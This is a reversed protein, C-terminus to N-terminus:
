APPKRRLRRRIPVGIVLGLVAMVALWPALAVATIVLAKGTSVLADLSGGWTRGIQTTFEPSEPPVYGKRDRMSVTLTSFSAHDDWRKMQGRRVNIDGRVRTLERDVELIETLKSSAVKAEYLKRLAKERAELNLAEAETDYYRDTVDDSDKTKKRAEGLKAVADMLADFGAVPVRITWTGSRPTGPEGTTESRDVYAKHEDIVAALKAQGADFDDVLLEVRGTYVVKRPRPKPDAAAEGKAPERGAAEPRDAKEKKDKSADSKSNPSMKADGCGVLLVGLIAAAISARM